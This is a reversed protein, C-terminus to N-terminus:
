YRCTNQSRWINRVGELSSVVTTTPVVLFQSEDGWMYCSIPSVLAWLAMRMVGDVAANRGVNKRTIRGRSPLEKTGLVRSACDQGDEPASWSCSGDEDDGDDDDRVVAPVSGVTTVM